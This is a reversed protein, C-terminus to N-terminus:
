SKISASLTLERGNERLVSLAEAIIEAHDFALNESEITEYRDRLCPIKAKRLRATATRDGNQLSLAIHGEDTSAFDIEFWTAEAADDAGIPKVTRGDVVALYASSIVWGRPDRGPKSFIGIPLICKPTVGTEETAERLACEEVTEDPNAFGGPLAFFNRYPHRARRVLLISLKAKADTSTDNMFLCLDSTVSPRPYKDARYNKLFEKESEAEATQETETKREQETSM